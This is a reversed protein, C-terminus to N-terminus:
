KGEGRLVQAVSEYRAAALQVIQLFTAKGLSSQQAGFQELVAELYAFHVGVEECLSARQEFSLEKLARKALLVDVQKGAEQTTAAVFAARALQLRSIVADFSSLQTFTMIVQPQFEPVLRNDFEPRDTGPPTPEETNRFSVGYPSDGESPRLCNIIIDGGGFELVTPGNPSINTANHHIM